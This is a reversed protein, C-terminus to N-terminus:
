TQAKKNFEWLHIKFGLYRVNIPNKIFSFLIKNRLKKKKIRQIKRSEQGKM